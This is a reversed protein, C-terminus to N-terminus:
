PGALWRVLNLLFRPNQPAEPANMGMPRREPGALQASFMAAEGFVAVRGRGFALV